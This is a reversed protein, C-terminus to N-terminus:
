PHAPGAMGGSPAMGSGTQAPGAMGDQKMPKKHKKKGMAMGDHAMGGQMGSSAAMGGSPQAPSPDAAYAPAALAMVLVATALYKTM